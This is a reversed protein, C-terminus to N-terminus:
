LWPQNPDLSQYVAKVQALSLAWCAVLRPLRQHRCCQCGWAAALAAAPSCPPHHPLLPLLPARLRMAGCSPMHPPRSVQTYHHLADAPVPSLGATSCPAPCPLAPCAANRGCASLAELQWRRGARESGAHRCECEGQRAGRREDQLRRRLLPCPAGDPVSGLCGALGGCCGQALGPGGAPRVLPCLRTTCTTAAAPPPPLSPLCHGGCM